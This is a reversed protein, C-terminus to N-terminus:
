DIRDVEEMAAEVKGCSRWLWRGTVFVIVGISVVGVVMLQAAVPVPATGRTAMVLLGGIALGLVAIVVLAPLVSPQWNAVPEAASSAVTIPPAEEEVIPEPAPAVSAMAMSRWSLDLPDVVETRQSAEDEFGLFIEMAVEKRGSEQIEM